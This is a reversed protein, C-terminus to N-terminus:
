NMTQIYPARLRYENMIQSIEDIMTLSSVKMLLPFSRYMLPVWEVLEKRILEAIEPMSFRTNNYREIYKQIIYAVEARYMHINRSDAITRRLEVHLDTYTEELSSVTSKICSGHPCSTKCCIHCTCCAMDWLFCPLCCSLASGVLLTSNICRRACCYKYEPPRMKGRNVINAIISLERIKWLEIQANNIFIDSQNSM